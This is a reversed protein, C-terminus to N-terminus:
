SQAPDMGHVWQGACMVARVTSLPSFILEHPDAEISTPLSLIVLDASKGPTLSGTESQCGLAEAGSLTAMRLLVAGPVDPYRAHLFRAEALVDLDPNSALSDTGLAVRVGNALFDRFPHPTHGFAAHTRPCYVITSNPPLPKSPDLYNGHALLLNEVQALILLLQGPSEVLGAPDWVGRERLFDVFPGQRRGLLHLEERSEAFHIMLPVRQGRAQEAAKEFLSRRVSYPAHPSLAPKCLGSPPHAKLWDCAGTWFEEARAAALGLLEYFVVARLPSSRLADWSRGGSAIDGVLTTGRSLSEVIGAQIARATEESSDSQRHSAIVRLWDVLNRTPPVKGRLHTLDLHTHANVFGPMIAAHGLDLDASRTGQADVSVIRDGSLTITGRELPSGEVPLVWQATLTWTSPPKEM